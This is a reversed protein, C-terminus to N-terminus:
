QLNEKIKEVSSILMESPEYVSELTKMDVAIQMTEATSIKEGTKADKVIYKIILCTEYEKLIATITIEQNFISPKIYKIKMTAVPYMYGSERMKEYSYGIKELLNCRADELYKVYNGHWVVQMSDVDYFPVKINITEKIEM